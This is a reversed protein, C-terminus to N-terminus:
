WEAQTNNDFCDSSYMFCPALSTSQSSREELSENGDDRIEVQHSMNVLTGFSVSKWYAHGDRPYMCRCLTLIRPDRM